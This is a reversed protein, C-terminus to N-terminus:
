TRRIRNRGLYENKDGEQPGCGSVYVAKGCTKEWAEEVLQQITLANNQRQWGHYASGLYSLVLATKM